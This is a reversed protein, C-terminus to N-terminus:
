ACGGAPGSGPQQNTKIGNIAVEATKYGIFSFILVEAEDSVTLTYKGDIDTATGGTGGKVTVTAGILPEGNVDTVTGSITKDFANNAAFTNISGLLLLAALALFSKVM